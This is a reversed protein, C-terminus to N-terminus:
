RTYYAIRERMYKVVETGPIGKGDLEKGVRERAKDVKDIIPTWRAREQPSLRVHEIGETKCYEKAAQYGEVLLDISGQKGFDSNKDIVAKLDAPLKNYTDRNMITMVPVPAGFSQELVYKIKGALKFDSVAEPSAAVGDITGKELGLVWDAPSMFAPTAGLDKTLDGGERSGVRIQLGKMDELTRVAKRTMIVQPTAPGLWFVKVDKWEDAMVKPFEKWLDDYVKDATVVDPACLIFAFTAGLTFGKPNYRFGYSIDATGNVAADYLEPPPVLTNAPFIRVTLRGKSDAAIKKAWREIHKHFPSGAPSMHALRLEMPRDAAQVPAGPFLIATALVSFVLFHAMVARKM